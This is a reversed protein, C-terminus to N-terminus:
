GFFVYESRVPPPIQPPTRRSHPIVFNPQTPMDCTTCPSPQHRRPGQLYYERKQLEESTPDADGARTSFLSELGDKLEIGWRMALTHLFLMDIIDEEVTICYNGKANKQAVVPLGEEGNRWSWHRISKSNLTATLARIGARSQLYGQLKAQKETGLLGNRLLDKICWETFEVDVEDKGSLLDNGYDLMRQRLLQLQKNEFANDFLGALYGEIAKADISKKSFTHKEFATYVSEVDEEILEFEDDLSVKDLITGVNANADLTQLANEMLAIHYETMVLRSAFAELYHHLSKETAILKGSSILKDHQAQKVRRTWMAFDDNVVGHPEYVEVRGLLNALRALIADRAEQQDYAKNLSFIVDETFRDKFRQFEEIKSNAIERLMKSVKPM